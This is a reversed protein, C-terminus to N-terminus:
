VLKLGETIELEAVKEKLRYGVAISSLFANAIPVAMCAQLWKGFNEDAMLMEMLDGAEKDTVNLSETLAKRFIAPSPLRPM